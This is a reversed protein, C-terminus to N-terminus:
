ARRVAWQIAGVVVALLLVLGGGYLFVGGAGLVGAVFAFGGVLVLVFM